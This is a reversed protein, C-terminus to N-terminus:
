KIKIISLNSYVDHFLYWSGAAYLWVQDNRNLKRTLTVAGTHAHQEKHQGIHTLSIDNGNLRIYYLANNTLSMVSASILYLGEHEVTFKGTTKYSSLNTIGVSYKVDDFKMRTNSITGESSPHATIAVRKSNRIVESEVHSLRSKTLTQKEKMQDIKVELKDDM